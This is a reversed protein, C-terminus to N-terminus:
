LDLDSFLQVNSLWCWVCIGVRTSNHSFSYNKYKIDAFRLQFASGAHNRMEVMDGRETCNESTMEARHPPGYSPFLDDMRTWFMLHCYLMGTKFSAHPKALIWTTSGNRRGCVLLTNRRCTPLVEGVVNMYIRQRQEFALTSIKSEVGSESGLMVQAM